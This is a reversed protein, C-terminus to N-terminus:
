IKHMILVNKETEIDQNDLEVVTLDLPQMYYLNAVALGRLHVLVM